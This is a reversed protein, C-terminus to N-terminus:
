KTLFSTAPQADVAQILVTTVTFGTVKCGVEADASLCVIHLLVVPLIMSVETPPEPPVNVQYLPLQPLVRTPVPVGSVIATGVVVVM